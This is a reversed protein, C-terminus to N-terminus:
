AGKRLVAVLYRHDKTIYSFKVIDFLDGFMRVLKDRNYWDAYYGVEDYYRVFREFNSDEDVPGSPLPAETAIRWGRDSYLLLRAEGGPRLLEHAREMIERPKRSHHLVGNCHFVDFSNEPADIFPHENTVLYRGAKAFGFLDMVREAVDLNSESIDAISVRNGAKALELSELGVGCGFDLIDKDSTSDLGMMIRWRNGTNRWNATSYRATHMENITAKLRESPARMLETGSRYGADDVPPRSWSTVHDDWTPNMDM